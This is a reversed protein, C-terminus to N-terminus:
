RKGIRQDWSVVKRCAGSNNENNVRSLAPLAIASKMIEKLSNKAEAPAHAMNNIQLM